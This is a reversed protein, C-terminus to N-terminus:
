IDVKVENYDIHQWSPNKKIKIKCHEEKKMGNWKM